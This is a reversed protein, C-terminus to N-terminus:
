QILRYLNRTLIKLKKSSNKKSRCTFDIAIHTCMLTLISYLTHYCLLITCTYINSASIKRWALRRQLISMILTERNPCSVFLLNFLCTHLTDCRVHISSSSVHPNIIAMRPLCYSIGRVHGVGLLQCPGRRLAPM